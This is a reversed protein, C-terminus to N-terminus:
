RRHCFVTQVHGLVTQAHTPVKEWVSLLLIAEQPQSISFSTQEDWVQTHVCAGAGPRTLNERSYRGAQRGQQGARDSDNGRDTEAGLAM